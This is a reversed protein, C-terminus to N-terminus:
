DETNIDGLLKSAETISKIQLDDSGSVLRSVTPKAEKGLVIAEKGKRLLVLTMNNHTLKQAFERALSLQDFLGTETDAISQVFDKATDLKDKIKNLTGEDNKEKDYNEGKDEDKVINLVDFLETNLIDIEIRNTNDQKFLNIDVTPKNELEISIRGNIIMKISKAILDIPSMVGGLNESYDNNTMISVDKEIVITQM